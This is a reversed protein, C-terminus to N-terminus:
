AFRLRTTLSAHGCESNKFRDHWARVAVFRGAAADHQMVRSSRSVMQYGRGVLQGPVPTQYTGEVRAAADYEM